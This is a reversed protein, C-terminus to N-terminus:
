FRGQLSSHVPVNRGCFLYSYFCTKNPGPEKGPQLSVIAVFYGNCSCITSDHYANRACVVKLFPVDLTEETVM